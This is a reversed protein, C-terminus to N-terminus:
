LFREKFMRVEIALEAHVVNLHDRVGGQDQPFTSHLRAAFEAAKLPPLYELIIQTTDSLPRPDPTIRIDEARCIPKGIAPSQTAYIKGDWCVYRYGANQAAQFAPQFAAGPSYMRHDANFVEKWTLTIMNM